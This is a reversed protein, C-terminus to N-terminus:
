LSIVLLLTFSFLVYIDMLRYNKLSKYKKRFFFTFLFISTLILFLFFYKLSFFLFVPFLILPFFIALFDLLVKSIEYRLVSVVTKLGGKKDTEYDELHNRLEAMVSLYFFSFGLLYHLSTLKQNFILVPFFFILAGAFLGHSILDLFPRGKFRIPPASYFFGLLFAMLCFLFIKWGFFASLALGFIGLFISFILGKPFSIEKSVLLNEKELHYRDEKTDFVDNISFGFALLLLVIALFIIIENLPSLYGKSFLFGFAAILFYARWDKVRLFKFYNGLSKLM